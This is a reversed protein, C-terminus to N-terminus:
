IERFAFCRHNNGSEGPSLHILRHLLGNLLMTDSLEGEERTTTMVGIGYQSLRSKVLKFFDRIDSDTGMDIVEDVCNGLFIIDYKKKSDQLEEIINCNQLCEIVGESTGDDSVPFMKPNDHAWGVFFREAAAVSSIMFEDSVQLESPAPSYQESDGV